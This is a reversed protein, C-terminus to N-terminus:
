ASCGSAPLGSTAVSLSSGLGSRATARAPGLAIGGPRTAIAVLLAPDVLDPSRDGVSQRRSCGAHQCMSADHRIFSSSPWAGPPASGGCATPWVRAPSTAASMAAVEPWLASPRRRPRLEVQMTLEGIRKMASDMGGAGSRRANSSRPTSGASRKRVRWQELRFFEVGQSARCFNCRSRERLLRLVVERRARWPTWRQRGDWRAQPCSRRMAQPLEDHVLWVRGCKGRGM